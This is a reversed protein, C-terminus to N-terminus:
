YLSWWPWTEKYYYLNSDQNHLVSINRVELQTLVSILKSKRPIVRGSNNDILKFYNWKKTQWKQVAKALLSSKIRQGDSKTFTLFGPWRQAKLGNILNWQSWFISDYFCSKKKLLFRGQGQGKFVLLSWMLTMIWWHM